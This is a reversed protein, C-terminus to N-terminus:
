GAAGTRRSVTNGGAEAAASLAADAGSILESATRGDGPYCALGVSVTVSRDEDRVAEVAARLREALRSGAQCAGPAAEPVVVAFEEGGYRAILALEDEDEGVAERLAGAVRLLMEQGAEYGFASNFRDFGDIDAMVLTVGREFRKSREIELALQRRLYERNFLGTHADVISQAVLRAERGRVEDMLMIGIAATGGVVTLTWLARVAVYSASFSLEDGVFPMQVTAMLRAYELLLVTAYAFMASGAIAWVGRRTPLIMAAELVFLLYMAYFWSYAGGSYHILVTVVLIDALLQAVNFV